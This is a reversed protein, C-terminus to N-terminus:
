GNKVILEGYKGNASQLETGEILNILTNSILGIKDIYDFDRENKLFRLQMQSIIYAM